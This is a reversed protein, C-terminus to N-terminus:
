GALVGPGDAVAVRSRRTFGGWLAALMLLWTAPAPLASTRELVLGDNVLGQTASALVWDWDEPSGQRQLSLGVAVGNEVVPLLRAVAGAAPGDIAAVPGEYALFEAVVGHPSILAVADPGNQIGSFAVVAEAWAGIATAPDPVGASAYPAGDSGNYLVVQWGVWDFGAPGTVAVFENSDAGVNDYHIESLFPGIVAARASIVSGLCVCALLLRKVANM